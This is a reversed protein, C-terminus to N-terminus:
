NKSPGGGYNKRYHNYQNINLGFHINVKEWCGQWCKNNKTNKITSMRVPTFHSRLQNQNASGKHWPHQTKRSMKKLEEKSFPWNQENAMEENPWQYKLHKTKQTGQINLNTIKKQQAFAGLFDL